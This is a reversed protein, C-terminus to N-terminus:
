NRTVVMIVGQSHDVGWRMIATQSDYYRILVIESSLVQKLSQIGGLRIDDLYVLVERQQSLGDPRIKLWSAKLIEVAEYATRFGAERIQAQTIVNRDVREGGATQRAGCAIGPIVLFGILSLRPLPLSM